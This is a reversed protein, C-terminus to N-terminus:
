PRIEFSKTTASQSCFDIEKFGKYPLLKQDSKLYLFALFIFETHKSAYYGHIVLHYNRCTRM